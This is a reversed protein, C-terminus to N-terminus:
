CCEVHYGAVDAELLDSDDLWQDCAPCQDPVGRRKTDPEAIRCVASDTGRYVVRDVMASHKVGSATDVVDLMDGAQASASKATAGWSGDDLKKPTARIIKM